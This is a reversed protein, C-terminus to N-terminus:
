FLLFHGLFYPKYPKPLSVLFDFNDLSGLVDSKKLILQMVSTTFLREVTWVFTCGKAHLLIDIDM